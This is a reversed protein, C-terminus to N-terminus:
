NLIEFSIIQDFQDSSLTNGDLFAVRVEISNIHKDFLIQRNTDNEFMTSAYHISSVSTSNPLSTVSHIIFDM